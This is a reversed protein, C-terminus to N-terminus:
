QFLWPPRAWCPYGTESTNSSFLSVSPIVWLTCYKSRATNSACGSFWGGFLTRRLRRPLWFYLAFYWLPAGTATAGGGTGTAGDGLAIGELAAGVAATFVVITSMVGGMARLACADTVTCVAGPADHETETLYWLPGILTGPSSGFVAFPVPIADQTQFIPGSVRGPVQGTVTAQM